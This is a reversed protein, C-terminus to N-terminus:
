RAKTLNQCKGEATAAQKKGSLLEQLADCLQLNLTQGLVRFGSLTETSPQVNRRRQEKGASTTREKILDGTQKGFPPIAHRASTGALGNKFAWKKQSTCIQEYTHKDKGTRNLGM